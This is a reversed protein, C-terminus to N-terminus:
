GCCLSRGNRGIKLFLPEKKDAPSLTSCQKHFFHLIWWKKRQWVVALLYTSSTWNWKKKAWLGGGVRWFHENYIIENEGGVLGKVAARVRKLSVREGRRNEESNITWVNFTSRTWIDNEAFAWASLDRIEFDPQKLRLQGSAAHPAAAASFNPLRPDFDAVAAAAWM